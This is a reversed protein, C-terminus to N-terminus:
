SGLATIEVYGNGLSFDLDNCKPLVSLLWNFLSLIGQVEGVHMNLLQQESLVGTFRATLRQKLAEAEESRGKRELADLVDKISYDNKPAPKIIHKPNVTEQTKLPLV